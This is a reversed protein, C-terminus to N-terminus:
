HSIGWVALCFGISLIAGAALIGISWLDGRGADGSTLNKSLYGSPLNFVKSIRQSHKILEESIGAYKAHEVEIKIAVAAAVVLTGIAAVIAPHFLFCPLHVLHEGALAAVGWAVAGFSGIAAATYIHEAERRARLEDTYQTFLTLLLSQESFGQAPNGCFNCFASGDAIEKTCSPCNM